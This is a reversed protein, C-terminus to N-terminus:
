SPIFYFWEISIPLFLKFCYKRIVKQESKIHLLISIPYFNRVKLIKNCVLLRKFRKFDLYFKKKSILFIVNEIQTISTQISFLM